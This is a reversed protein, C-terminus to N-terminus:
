QVINPYINDVYVDSMRKKGTDLLSLDRESITVRKESANANFYM